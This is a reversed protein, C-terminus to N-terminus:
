KAAKLLAEIEPILTALKSLAAQKAEGHDVLFREILWHIITTDGTSEILAPLKSVPFELDGKVKRTLSSPSEDLDYAITKHPKKGSYVSAVLVDEINPYRETLGPEFDLTLQNM